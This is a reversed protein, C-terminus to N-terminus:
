SGTFSTQVVAFDLLDVTGSANVDFCACEEAVDVDPGLFCSEVFDDYDLLNVGGTSNCDGPPEEFWFGGTLTFEGAEMTGAEPQGITGSLVFDGGTSFMMGGGDITSRALEFDDARTEGPQAYGLAAASLATALLFPTKANRM